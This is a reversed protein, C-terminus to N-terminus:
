RDPSRPLALLRSLTDDERDGLERTELYEGEQLKASEREIAELPAPLELMRSTGCWGVWTNRSRKARYLATDAAALTEKWSAFGPHTPVFPYVSFGISCGTRAALGDGVRFIQKAVAARVREALEAAAAMDAGHCLMLFEDGGWRVVQDTSRSVNRLIEAIQVIVRDGAEHGYQDNIPKLRDLDIMMLAFSQRAAGHREEDERAIRGIAEYFARRNSLGTLPDTISADRLQRNADELQSNREHLEATRQQVESELQRKYAAEREIRRQQSLWVAGLLLAAALGYFVFAWWRLWPPSQVGLTIATGTENWVGDSNAARVRFVYEGGDLDTYTAQRQTGAEVWDADFGELKYAYRNEGPAAFDLGAFRFAIVDDRYDLALSRVTEHPAGLAAPANLKLIETVVVPPAHSNTQLRNGFFANYGNSGGFFLEGSRAAFHAGFNFEDGQLGHSRRFNAFRGTKVDLRSLGRNTSLWLREAGDSEIGYVTSNPLGDSEAFNDFKLGQESLPSGMARDLGGGRTGIWVRGAADVHIDYITNSSLSNPLTPDHRYHRFQSTAPDLVSLGGGDTGIWILGTQDEAIATARDGALGDSGGRAVPYRRISDDRGDIRAVGGGFTGAWVNGRSDLALTMIGPAGLSREDGSRYVFRSIQGTRQDLRAIGATMTGAWVRDQADVVVAMVNDDDIRGAGSGDRGYRRTRGDARDIAVLGGGFTGIWLTGTRDEAFSAVNNSPSGAVRQHGFSWSRPNWRALGGSKTGIWLLGGADEFLTTINDDPLSASDGPDRRTTNFRETRRDLLALGRATGIWLRGASDQLVATVRDDPLSQEDGARSRLLEMAGSAPEIRLLGANTALWLTGRDDIQAANFEPKRGAPLMARVRESWRDVRQSEPDIRDLGSRSVVWLRGGSDETVAFVADDSLSGPDAPDHRFRRITGAETDVAALGDDRTGIWLRGARDFRLTRVKAQPDFLPSGSPTALPRFEGTAPDRMAVGGGDTGIFLRGAADRALTSIWNNPLSRPNRRDRVIHLLDYGDYRNLGDETGIWIFGDADQQIATVGGQALGNDASLRSFLMQESSAMSPLAPVALAITAVLAQLVLAIRSQQGPDRHKYPNKKPVATSRHAPVELQL